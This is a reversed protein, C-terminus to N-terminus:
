GKKVVVVFLRSVSPGNAFLLMGCGGAAPWLEM